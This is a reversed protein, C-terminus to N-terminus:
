QLDRPRHLTPESPLSPTVNTLPLEIELRTGQIPAPLARVTGGAAEALQRVISLGLGRHRTKPWAQSEQRTTFGEEFIRERLDEPIGPGTDEVTLVV